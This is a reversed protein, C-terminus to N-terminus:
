FTGRLIRRSLANLAYCSFFYLRPMIGFGLWDYNKWVLRAMSIKNASLSSSSIRYRLLDFPLLFGIHGLTLIRLYLHFETYPRVNAFYIKGLRSTDYMVSSLAICTDSLLTGVSYTTPPSVLSSLLEPNDRFCRFKTYSFAIQNAKMFTLQLDLKQDIWIDDQDLFAIFTGRSQSIATNRSLLPGQNSPNKIIRIRPDKLCYREIEIVSQDTSCDDIVILEWSQYSQRIVSEISQRILSGGNFVPMIVSVLTSASM